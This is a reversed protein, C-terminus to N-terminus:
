ERIAGEGGIGVIATPPMRVGHILAGTTARVPTPPLGIRLMRAIRSSPWAGALVDGVQDVLVQSLCFLAEGFEGM